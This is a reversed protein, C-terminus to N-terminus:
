YGNILPTPYEPTELYEEGKFETAYSSGAPRGNEMKSYSFGGNFGNVCTFPTNHLIGHKFIGV